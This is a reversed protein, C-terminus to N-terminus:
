QRYRVRHRRSNALADARRARARIAPRLELAVTAELPSCVVVFRERGSSAARGLIAGNTDLVTLELHGVEDAPSVFADLCRGADVQASIRTPMRADLPVGVRRVDLWQGGIESRHAFVLEDLGPWSSPNSAQADGPVRVGYLAATRGADAPAVRQAGVAVLGHGMAIRAAVWIRAPHPPCVLLAPTKDPGEDSGVVSGDEGYAFLDVDEVSAGARAILVACQDSPVELLGSVRDGAVGADIALVNTNPGSLALLPSSDRAAGVPGFHGPTSATVPPARRACGAALLLGLAIEFVRV